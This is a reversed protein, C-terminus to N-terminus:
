VVGAQRLSQIEEPGMGLIGSLVEETHEGLEPCAKQPQVPTRSFKIPSNLVRLKGARPHSVEVIMNRAAIQPDRYVAEINNIPGCPIGMRQFEDLWERATKTQMIASLIPELVEYNKTRMEGDAFREDDILDVRDIAACFLPWQNGVIGVVIYDDKTKFAQFPTTLPHRTGLPGPVKGTAFYRAFANEVIAVQADLMAVDIMQGQGSLSREHVAALIGIALFLGAAIDGMSAGPRIPPGGPEGTISMIGGM